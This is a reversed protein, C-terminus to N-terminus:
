RGPPHSKSSRATAPPDASVPSVTFIATPGEVLGGLPDRGTEGALAFSFDFDYLVTMAGASTIKFVGGLSGSGGESTTGCFNGDTGQLLPGAPPCGEAMTFSHLTTLVGSPTVKFVTGYGTSGGGSTTGYFNGGTGQILGADPYAGDSRAFTYITTLV